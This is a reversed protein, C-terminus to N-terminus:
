NRLRADLSPLSHAARSSIVAHPPLASIASPSIKPWATTFNDWSHSRTFSFFPEGPLPAYPPEDPHRIVAFAAILPTSCVQPWAAPISM